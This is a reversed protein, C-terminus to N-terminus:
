YKSLLILLLPHPPFQLFPFLPLLPSLPLVLCLLLLALVLVLVLPLLLPLPPSPFPISNCLPMPVAVAMCESLHLILLFPLLERLWILLCTLFPGGMYLLQHLLLPIYLSQLPGVSSLLVWRICPVSRIMDLKSIDSLHHPLLSLPFIVRLLPLLLPPLHLQCLFLLSPLFSSPSLLPSCCPCFLDAGGGLRGVYLVLHSTGSKLSLSDSSPLM